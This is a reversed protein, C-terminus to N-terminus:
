YFRDSKTNKPLTDSIEPGSRGAQRRLQWLIMIAKEEGKSERLISNSSESLLPAFHSHIHVLLVIIWIFREEKLKNASPLHQTLPVFCVILVM